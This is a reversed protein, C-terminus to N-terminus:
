GNNNSAPDYNNLVKWLEFTAKFLELGKTLKDEPAEMIKVLGPFDTNVYIIYCKVGDGIGELHFYDVTGGYFLQPHVMSQEIYPKTEMYQQALIMERYAALQQYHNPYLKLGEFEEKSCAKTKYDAIFSPELSELAQAVADAITWDACTDDDYVSMTYSDWEGKLYQEILNHVRTGEDRQKTISSKYIDDVLGLNNQEIAALWAEDRRDMRWKEIQRKAVIDTIGSFSPCLGLKRADGLNTDRETSGDKRPKKLLQTHNPKGSKNYWHGM